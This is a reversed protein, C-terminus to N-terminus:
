GLCLIIKLFLSALVASHFFNINKFIFLEVIDFCVGPNQQKVGSFACAALPEWLNFSLTTKLHCRYWLKSSVLQLDADYNVM